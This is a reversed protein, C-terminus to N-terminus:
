FTLLIYKKLEPTFPNIKSFHEKGDIKNGWDLSHLPAYM